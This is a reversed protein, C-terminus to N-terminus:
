KLENEPGILNGGAINTFVHHYQCHKQYWCVAGSMAALTLVSWWTNWHLEKMYCLVNLWLSVM